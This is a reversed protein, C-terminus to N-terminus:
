VYMEKLNEKIKKKNDQGGNTTKELNEYRSIESLM